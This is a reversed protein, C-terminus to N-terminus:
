SFRHACTGIGHTALYTGLDAVIAQMDQQCAKVTRAAQMADHAVGQLQQGMSGDMHTRQAHLDGLSRFVKELM